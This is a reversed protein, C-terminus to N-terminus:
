YNCTRNSEGDIEFRLISYDGPTHKWYFFLTGPGFVKMEMWSTRGAGIAGCCASDVTGSPEGAAVGTLRGM